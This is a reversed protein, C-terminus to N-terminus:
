VLCGRLLFLGFVIAIYSCHVRSRGRRLIPRYCRVVPSATTYKATNPGFIRLMRAVFRLRDLAQLCGPSPMVLLWSNMPPTASLVM